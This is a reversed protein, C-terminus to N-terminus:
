GARRTVRGFLLQYGDTGGASEFAAMVRRLDGVPLPQRGEDPVVAGIGKLHALLGKADRCDLAIDEDFAFADDQGALMARLDELTPYAPVGCAVGCTAHAARWHSFSGAGMTSFILSGGPRLLGALRDIAAALDDFWQFALSSLILDFWPGEFAPEEGDMPLFTGAVMGGAAARELMRPSLDTVVLEAGAWRAQVDHTLFGTGCGIELIRAVGDRHQREALDAVLKAAFRQPGAHVEYHAAAGGFADSIRQKRPSNM